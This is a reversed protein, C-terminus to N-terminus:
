ASVYVSGNRREYAKLADVIQRGVEAGQTGMGANVTLNITTGGIKGNARNLPIIAEPGAEGVMGLTPGTVIGGKAFYKMGAFPDFGAPVINELNSLVLAAEADSMTLSQNPGSPASGAFSPVPVNAIAAMSGVAESVMGNIAALLERRKRGAPMFEKILGVLMSQALVVGQMMFNGSAQNGVQQGMNQVSQYVANVNAINEDINGQALADAINAGREGSASIIADFAQRSLGKSLLLQMNTTFQALKKGQNVFEEVVSQAGNAADASADQYAKQLSALNKKQDETAEGQIEAQYQTLAALTDTVKKQRETFSDFADSLSLMGVFSDSIGTAYDKAKQINDQL